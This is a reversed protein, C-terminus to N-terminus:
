MGLTRRLPVGKRPGKAWSESTMKVLCKWWLNTAIGTFPVDLFGTLTDSGNKEAKESFPSTKNWEGRSRSTQWTKRNEHKWPGAIGRFTGLSVWSLRVVYPMSPWGLWHLFLAHRRADKAAFISFSLLQQRDSELLVNKQCQRMLIPFPSITPISKSWSIEWRKGALQDGCSKGGGLRFPFALRRQGLGGHCSPFMWLNTGGLGWCFFM